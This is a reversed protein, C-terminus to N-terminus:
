SGRLASVRLSVGCDPLAHPLLAAQRRAGIRSAAPPVPPCRNGAAAKALLKLAAAVLDLERGVHARLFVPLSNGARAMWRMGEAVKVLREGSATAM